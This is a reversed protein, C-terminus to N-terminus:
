PMTLAESSIREMRLLLRGEVRARAMAESPRM